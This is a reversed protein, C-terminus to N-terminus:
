GAVTRDGRGPGRGGPGCAQVRIAHRDGFVRRIKWALIVGDRDASRPGRTPAATGARDPVWAGRVTGAARASGRQQAPEVDRPIDADRGAASDAPGAGAHLVKGPEVAM